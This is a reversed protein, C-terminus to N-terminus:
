VITLIHPIGKHIVADTQELANADAGMKVLYAEASKWSQFRISPVMQFKGEPPNIENPLGIETLDVLLITHSLQYVVFRHKVVILGRGYFSRTL